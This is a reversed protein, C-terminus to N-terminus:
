EGEEVQNVLEDVYSRNKTFEPINLDLHWGSGDPACSASRSGHRLYSSQKSYTRHTENPVKVPKVTFLAVDVPQVM